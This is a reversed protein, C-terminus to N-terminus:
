RTKEGHRYPEIKSEPPWCYERGTMECKWTRYAPRTPWIGHAYLYAWRPEHSDFDRDGWEAGFGKGVSYGEHDLFRRRALKRAILDRDEAETQVTPAALDVHSLTSHRSSPLCWGCFGENIPVSFAQLAYRLADLRHHDTPDSLSV